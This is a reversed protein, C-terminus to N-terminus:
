DGQRPNASQRKQSSRGRVYCLMAALTGHGLRDLLSCVGGSHSLQTPEVQAHVEARAVGFLQIQLIPICIQRVCGQKSACRAVQLEM